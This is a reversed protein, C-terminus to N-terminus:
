ESKELFKQVFPIEYYEDWSAVNYIAKEVLVAGIGNKSGLFKADNIQKMVEIDAEFLGFCNKFNSM